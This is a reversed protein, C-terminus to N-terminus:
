VNKWVLGEVTGTMVTEGGENECAVAASLDYRDAREAVEAVTVECTVTEGTYVPNDFNFAMSHGLGELDSGIKTPM